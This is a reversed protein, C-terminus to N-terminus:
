RARVFLGIDEIEHRHNSLWPSSEEQNAFDTVQGLDLCALQGSQLLGIM